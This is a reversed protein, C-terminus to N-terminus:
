PRSVDFPAVKFYALPYRLAVDHDFELGSGFVVGVHAGLSQCLLGEVGVDVGDHAGDLRIHAEDLFSTPTPPTPKPKGNRIIPDRM